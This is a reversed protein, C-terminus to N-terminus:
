QFVCLSVCVCVRMWCLTTKETFGPCTQVRVGAQSSKFVCLACMDFRCKARRLVEDSVHATQTILTITAATITVFSGVDGSHVRNRPRWM